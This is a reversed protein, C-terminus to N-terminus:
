YLRAIPPKSELVKGREDVLVFFSHAVRVSTPDAGTQVNVRFHNEWLQVASIRFFNVPRGLATLVAQCLATAQEKGTEKSVREQDPDASSKSM